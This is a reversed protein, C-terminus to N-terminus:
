ECEEVRGIHLDIKFCHSHGGEIDHLYLTLEEEDDYMALGFEELFTVTAAELSSESILRATSSHGKRTFVEFQRIKPLRRDM